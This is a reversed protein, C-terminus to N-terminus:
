ALGIRCGTGGDPETLGGGCCRCDLDVSAALWGRLSSLTAFGTAWRLDGVTMRREALRGEVLHRAREVGPLLGCDLPPTCWRGELRVALSARTTETVEGRENVLVVDDAGAHRRAREEYRRRDTTKHFLAVDRSSVPELDVCLRLPSGPVVPFAGTEVAVPGDPRLVVRVRARSHLGRVAHAVLDEVGTPVPLGFYRASATLRALHADLNRVAGGNSDPSFGMTEILGHGRPISPASSGNLTRTKLLVEEWETEPMSDWTIGGGSGYYAVGRVKDVAATRIAVAFRARPLTSSGAVAPELVGVAGCYVGRPSRELRSIVSMASIKPAGTVSASPFLAGFIDALAVKGETRATVTSTLQWLAPHRQVQWLSPVAVSGPVAIRGLDNRLLDVVMVNEAREKPSDGLEEARTADEEAWRGRPATGKMPRTVLTDGVREFFLEPSGCAVAWGDTEIFAHYGPGHSAVLRRYLEFPDDQAGWPRHLRTTYNVLYVDGEAIASRIAAMASSHTGPDIECRWQRTADDPAAAGATPLAPVPVARAFVGFWALPLTSAPRSTAPLRFATDFTPAADYSVYGAVYNGLRAAAEAEVLM